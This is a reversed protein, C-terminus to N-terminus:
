LPSSSIPEAYRTSETEAEQGCNIEWSVGFQDTLVGFAESWFTKQLPMRVEGGEGLSRFVRAAERPNAIELLIYFGQPREYQAPLVDAGALVTDGVALTAHVIKDRWELPVQEATPSDGYTLMTLNDGGISQEYFRFASECQGSFLLHISVKSKPPM